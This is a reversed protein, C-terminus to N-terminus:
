YYKCGLLKESALKFSKNYMQELQAPTSYFNTPKISNTSNTTKSKKSFSEQITTENTMNKNQNKNISSEIKNLIFESKKYYLNASEGPAKAIFVLGAESFFM